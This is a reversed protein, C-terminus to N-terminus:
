RFGTRGSRVSAIGRGRARRAGAAREASGAIARALDPHLWHWVSSEKYGTLTAILATDMGFNFWDRARFAMDARRVYIPRVGYKTFTNHLARAEAYSLSM